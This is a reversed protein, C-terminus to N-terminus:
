CGKLREDSLDGSTDQEVRSKELFEMHKRIWRMFLSGKDTNLFRASGCDSIPVPFEFGDAECQYILNGDQYHSFHVPKSVRDKLSSM